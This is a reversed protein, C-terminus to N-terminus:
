WSLEGQLFAAAERSRPEAFFRDAPAHEVLRGNHIFLIEDAMRRAQGLDHTTMIIKSGADAISEILSEVARAAAPDLAATPEDLFLVEPELAWARALALRQQEGASLVRANRGALDALGTRALGRAVLARRRGRRVGHVRLAYDVNAAVSRRLLVSYEFVMTQRRRAHAAGEGLWRVAGQSPALLGHALRLLVSKGAGNPGLVVTRLGAELRVTIGRLITNGRVTYGLDDLELPLISTSM